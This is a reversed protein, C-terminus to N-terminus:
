WLLSASAVVVDVGHEAAGAAGPAGGAREESIGHNADFFVKLALCRVHMVYNSDCFYKDASLFGSGSEDFFSSSVRWVIGAVLVVVGKFEMVFEGVDCRGDFLDDGTDRLGLLLM